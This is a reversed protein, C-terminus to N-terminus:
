PSQRLRRRNDTETLTSYFKGKPPVRPEDFKSIDTMYEYPCVGKRKALHPVPSFKSTLKVADAPLTNALKDLSLLLLWEVATQGPCGPYAPVLLFM